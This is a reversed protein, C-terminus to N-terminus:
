WWWTRAAARRRAAEVAAAQHEYLRSIGQAALAAALGSPLPPNLEAYCAERAPSQRCAVIQGTYSPDGEIARLLAGLEM